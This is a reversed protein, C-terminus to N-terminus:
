QCIIVGVVRRIVDVEYDSVGRAPRKFWQPVVRLAHFEPDVKDIERIHRMLYNSHMNAVREQLMGFREEHREEGYIYSYLPEYVREYVEMAWQTYILAVRFFEM